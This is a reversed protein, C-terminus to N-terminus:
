SIRLPVLSLWRNQFTATQNGNNFYQTKITVASAITMEEETMASTWANSTAGSDAEYASLRTGAANSVVVGAYGGQSSNGTNLLCGWRVHFVGPRLIQMTPGVTGLDAAPSNNPRTQATSIQSYAESGGMFKWKYPDTTWTADYIFQWAYGTGGGTAYWVDGTIPAVPPGGSVPGITITPTRSPPWWAVVTVRRNNDFTVVCDDGRKPKSVNDRPMWPCDEWRTRDDINPIIVDVPDLSDQADSAITGQWVHQNAVPRETEEHMFTM